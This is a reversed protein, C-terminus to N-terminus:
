FRTEINLVNDYVTLPVERPFFLTFRNPKRLFTDLNKWKFNNNVLHLNRYNEM